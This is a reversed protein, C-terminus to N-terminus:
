NQGRELEEIKIEADELQFDLKAVRDELAYIVSLQDNCIGQLEEGYFAMKDLQKLLEENKLLLESLQATEKPFFTAHASIRILTLFNKLM